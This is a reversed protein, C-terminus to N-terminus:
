QQCRRREENPAGGLEPFAAEFEAIHRLSRLQVASRHPLADSQARRNSTAAGFRSPVPFNFVRVMCPLPSRPTAAPLSSLAHSSEILATSAQEADMATVFVDFIFGCTAGICAWFM